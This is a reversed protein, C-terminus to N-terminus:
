ENRAGQSGGDAEDSAAALRYGVGIETLLYRPRAPDREIKDRLQKMYVRLYHSDGIHEPGWVDTLLRRQTVVGGRQQALAALLRYEIPTFRIEGAPGRATRRALDVEVEGLRLRAGPEAGKLARRLGARVRALLEGVTFPKTVYDDAGADLAAIKQQEDVRASLILIPMSSWERIRAVVTRGDADPLGLDLIVLDPKHSSAEILGRKATDAEIVRFGDAALASRVVARLQPEDDILLVAHSATTM